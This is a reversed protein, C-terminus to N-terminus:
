ETANSHFSITFIIATQKTFYSNSKAFRGDLGGGVYNTKCNIKDKYNYNGCEM